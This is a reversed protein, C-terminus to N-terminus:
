CESGHDVTSIGDYFRAESESLYITGASIVVESNSERFTKLYDPINFSIHYKPFTVQRSHVNKLFLDPRNSTALNERVVEEKILMRRQFDFFLYACLLIVLGIGLLVFIRKVFLKKRFLKMHVQRDLINSSSM